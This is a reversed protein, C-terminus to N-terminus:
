SCCCSIPGLKETAKQTWLLLIRWPKVAYVLSIVCNPCVMFFVSKFNKYCASNTRETYKKKLCSANGYSLNWDFAVVKIVCVQRSKETLTTTVSLQVSITKMNDVFLCPTLPLLTQNEEYVNHNFHQWRWGTFMIEQDKCQSLKPLLLM